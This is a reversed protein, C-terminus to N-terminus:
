QAAHVAIRVSGSQRVDKWAAVPQPPRWRLAGVPPAAYPIGRFVRMDPTGGSLGSVPGDGTRIVDPVAALVPRAALIAGASLALLVSRFAPM